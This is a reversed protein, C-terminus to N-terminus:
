QDIIPLLANEAHKPPNAPRKIVKGASVLHDKLNKKIEQAEAESVEIFKGKQENAIQADFECTVVFQIEGNEDFQIFHKM